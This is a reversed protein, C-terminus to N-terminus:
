NARGDLEVPVRTSDATPQGLSDHEDTMIEVYERLTSGPNSVLPCYAFDVKCSGGPSIAQGSCSDQLTPPPTCNNAPVVQSKTVFDCVLYVSNPAGCQAFLSSDTTTGGIILGTITVMTQGQNTLTVTLPPSIGGAPIVGFDLLKADPVVSDIGIGTLQLEHPSDPDSTGLNVSVAATRPLPCRIATSPTDPVGLSPDGKIFPVFPICSATPVFMVSIPCSAGAALTTGLSAPCASFDVSYDKDENLGAPDIVKLSSVDVAGSTQNTLMITLASSTTSVLIPNFTVISQSFAIPQKCSTATGINVCIKGNDVPSTTPVTPPPFCGASNAVVYAQGGFGSFGSGDSIANVANIAATTSGITGVVAGNTGILKLLVATGTINGSLTADTFCPYNTATMTGTLTARTAGINDGQFIQGTVVFDSGALPPNTANVDSSHLTGQFNGTLPRVLAATWTGSEDKGCGNAVLSYTGGMSSAGATGTLSVTAGGENVTLTVNQGDNTGAVQFAGGCLPPVSLPPTLEVAGTVANGSQQLFGSLLTTTRPATTKQLTFQWNGASAGTNLSKTSGGGCGALVVLGALAM